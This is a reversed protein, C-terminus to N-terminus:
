LRTPNPSCGLLIITNQLQFTLTISTGRGSGLHDIVTYTIILIPSCFYSESALNASSLDTPSSLPQGSCSLLSSAIASEPSQVTGVSLFQERAEHFLSTYNKLNAEGQRSDMGAMYSPLLKTKWTVAGNISVYNGGDTHYFNCMKSCFLLSDPRYHLSFFLNRKVKKAKRM